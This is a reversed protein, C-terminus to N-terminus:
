FNIVKETPRLYFMLPILLLGLLTIATYTVLKLFDLYKLNM